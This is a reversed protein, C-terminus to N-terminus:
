GEIKIAAVPCMMAAEEVKQRLEEGPEPDLLEVVESDDGIDFVEPAAMVCEGHLECREFEVVVKM